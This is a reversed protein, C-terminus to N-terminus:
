GRDRPARAKGFPVGLIADLDLIETDTSPQVPHVVGQKSLVGAEPAGTRAPPGASVPAAPAAVRQRRTRRTAMGDYLGILLVVAVTAGVVVVAVARLQKKIVPKPHEDATLVMSSIQSQAPVNLQQQLATLTTPVEALVADRLQTAGSESRGHATVVLVPGSTSWDPTVEYDSSGVKDKIETQTADSTLARNVVGAAQDLGGLYLYPNGGDGVTSQPPLLVIIASTDYTPPIMTFVAFGLGAVVFLGALSLYWRKLLTSGIDRLQM